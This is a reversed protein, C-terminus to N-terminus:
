QRLVLKSLPNSLSQLLAESMRTMGTPASSPTSPPLPHYVCALHELQEDTLVHLPAPKDDEEDTMQSSYGDSSKREHSPKDTPKTPDIFVIPPPPTQISSLLFQDTSNTPTKEDGEPSTRGSTNAFIGAPLAETRLLCSRLLQEPRNLRKIPSIIPSHSPSTKIPSPPLQEQVVQHIISSHYQKISVFETYTIQEEGVGATREGLERRAKGKNRRAHIENSIKELNRLSEQYQSKAENM